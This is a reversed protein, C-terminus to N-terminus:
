FYVCVYMYKYTHFTNITYIYIHIYIDISFYLLTLFTLYMFYSKKGDCLHQNLAQHNTFPKLCDKWQCHLVEQPEVNIESDTM